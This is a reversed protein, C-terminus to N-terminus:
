EVQIEPVQLSGDGGIARQRPLNNPVALSTATFAPQGPIAEKRAVSGIVSPRMATHGIKKPQM